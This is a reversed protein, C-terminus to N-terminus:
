AAPPAADPEAAIDFRLAARRLLADDYRYQGFARDLDDDARHRAALAVLGAKRLQDAFPEAHRLIAHPEDGAVGVPDSEAGTRM